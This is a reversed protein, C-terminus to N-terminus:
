FLWWRKGTTIERIFPRNWRYEHWIERRYRWWLWMFKM